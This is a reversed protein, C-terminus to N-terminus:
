YTKFSMSNEKRSNEMQKRSTEKRHWRMMDDYVHQWPRGANHYAFGVKYGRVEAVRMLRQGLLRGDDNAAWRLVDRLSMNAIDLDTPPTEFLPGAVDVRPTRSRNAM